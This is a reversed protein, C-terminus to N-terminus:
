QTVVTEAQATTQALSPRMPVPGPATRKRPIPGLGRHTQTNICPDSFITSQLETDRGYRKATALEWRGLGSGDWVCVPFSQITGIKIHKYMRIHIYVYIWQCTYVKTYKQTSMLIFAYPYINIHANRNQSLTQFIEVCILSLQSSWQQLKWFWSQKRDQMRQSHFGVEGSELLVRDIPTRAETYSMCAYRYQRKSLPLVSSFDIRHHRKM